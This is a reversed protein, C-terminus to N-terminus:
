FKKIYYLAFYTLRLILKFFVIFKIDFIDVFNLIEFIILIKKM